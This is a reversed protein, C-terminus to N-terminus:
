LFVVVCRLVKGHFILGQISDYRIPYQSLKLTFELVRM